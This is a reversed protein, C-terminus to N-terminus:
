FLKISTTSGFIAVTFLTFLTMAMIAIVFKFLKIVGKTEEDKPLKIYAVIAAGLFLAGIVFGIM